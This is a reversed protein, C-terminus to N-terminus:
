RFFAALSFDEDLAEWHIGFPSLTFAAREEPSASQLRPYRDFPEFGRVGDPREVWVGREDTWVKYDM